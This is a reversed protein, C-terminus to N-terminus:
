TCWSAVCAFLVGASLRLSLSVYRARGGVSFGQPVVNKGAADVHDPEVDDGHRELGAGRRTTRIKVCCTARASDPGRRPSWSAPQRIRGSSTAPKGATVMLFHFPSSSGGITGCVTCSSAKADYVATSRQAVAFMTHDHLFSVDRVTERVHLESQLANTMADIVALHGQCRRDAPAAAKTYDM